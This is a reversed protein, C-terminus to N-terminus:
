VEELKQLRKSGLAILVYGAGILFILVYIILLIIKLTADNFVSTLSTLYRLAMISLVVAGIGEALLRLAAKYLSGQVNKRYLNIDQVVRLGLYFIIIYPIIITLVLLWDPLYYAAPTINDVAKSRFPNTITLYAFVASEVALFAMGASKLTPPLPKGVSRVLGNAGRYLLIFAVLVIILNLYNTIIVSTQTLHPYKHYIYSGINSINSSLPLWLALALLGSVLNGWAKGEKSDKVIEAYRKFKAYGYYAIIWIIVIPVVLTLRLLQIESTSLNYKALSAADPAIGFTLGIYILSLVIFIGLTIRNGM